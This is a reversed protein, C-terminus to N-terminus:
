GEEDLAERWAHRAITVFSSSLFGGFGGLVASSFIALGIGAWTIHEWNLAALGAGGLMGGAVIGIVTMARTTRSICTTETLRRSPAITIMRRAFSHQLPETAEDPRAASGQDRLTTGLANGFVHAAVLVLGLGLVLSPWAGITTMLAFLVSLATISILLARLGFQPPRTTRRDESPSVATSM